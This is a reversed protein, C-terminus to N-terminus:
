FQPAPLTAQIYLHAETLPWNTIKFTQGDVRQQGEGRICPTANTLEIKGLIVASSGWKGTTEWRLTDPCRSMVLMHRGSRCLENREVDDHERIKTDCSCGLATARRADPSGQLRGADVRNRRGDDRFRVLWASRCSGRRILTEPIRFPTASVHRKCMGLGLDLRIVYCLYAGQRFTVTRFCNGGQISGSDSGSGRGACDHALLWGIKRTRDAITLSGPFPRWGGLKGVGVGCAGGTSSRYVNHSM